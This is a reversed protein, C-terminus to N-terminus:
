CLRKQPNCSGKCSCKVLELVAAPAPPLICRDPIYVNNNITWGSEDISPLDTYRYSKDRSATYCVRKLHPIFAGRTPPLKEGEM